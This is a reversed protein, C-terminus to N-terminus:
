GLQAVAQMILLGSTLLAGLYFHDPFFWFVAFISPVASVLALRAWNKRAVADGITVFIPLVLVSLDHLFLYYVVLASASIGLLLRQELNRKEGIVLVALFVMVSLVALPLIGLGCAAFLAHLNPMRRLLPWYSIGGIQQLLRAYQLQAAIGTIAVSTILVAVSSAIWGAVLRLNRWLLFLLVIPLLIPFRFMGVGLLLGAQFEGVALRRFALVTILLLLLTDQGALISFAIPMFGLLLAPLIWPPGLGALSALRPKLSLCIWGLFAFNM